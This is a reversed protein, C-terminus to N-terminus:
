HKLRGEKANLKSHSFSPPLFCNSVWYDSQSFAKSLIKENRKSCDYYLKNEFGSSVKSYLAGVWNTSAFRCQMKRFLDEDEFYINMKALSEWDLRNVLFLLIFILGYQKHAWWLREFSWLVMTNKALQKMSQEKCFWQKRLSAADASSPVQPIRDCMRISCMCM